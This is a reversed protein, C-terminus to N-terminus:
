LKNIIVKTQTIRYPTRQHTVAACYDLTNQIKDSLKLIAQFVEENSSDVDLLFADPTINVRRVARHKAFEFQQHASEVKSTDFILNPNRESAIDIEDGLRVIAALYPLCITNGSALQLAAPYEKEDFLDTKRHGRAVQKIAFVHEESPLEFLPAYKDIFLGSLEHHFRRVVAMTDTPEHEKFFDGFDLKPWFRVLDERSIGMGIDHLYCGMILVFLEDANLRNVQEAGILENCYELVTLVHGGSHDTYEPFTLQYNELMIQLSLAANAFCKHLEPDLEQLRKEIMFDDYM